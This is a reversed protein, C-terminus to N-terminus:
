VHWERARCCVRCLQVAEVSFSSVEVARSLLEVRRWMSDAEVFRSLSSLFEVPLAELEVVAEVSGRCGRCSSLWPELDVANYPDASPTQFPDPHVRPGDRAGARRLSRSGYM